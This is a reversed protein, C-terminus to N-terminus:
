ELRAVGVGTVTMSTQGALRSIPNFIPVAHKTKVIMYSGPKVPAPLQTDPNLYEISDVTYGTFFGTTNATRPPGWAARMLEDFVDDRWDAGYEAKKRGDPYNAAKLTFEQTSYQLRTWEFGVLGLDLGMILVSLTVITGFVAEIFVLGRTNLPKQIKNFNINLRM